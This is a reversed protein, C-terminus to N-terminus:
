RCFMETDPFSLAESIPKAKERVCVPSLFLLTDFSFVM